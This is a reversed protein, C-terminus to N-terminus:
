SSPQYLIESKSNLKELQLLFFEGSNRSGCGIPDLEQINKLIPELDEAHVWINQKFSIEEAISELDNTLFGSEDLSDIIFDAVKYKTEDLDAFRYQKKLEQRFDPMEAIQRDPM